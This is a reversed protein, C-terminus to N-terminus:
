RPAVFIGDFQVLRGEGRHSIDFINYLIYGHREFFLFYESLKPQSVYTPAVLLELYVLGISRKAIMEEAGFLVNMESGQVDIKLIDVQEIGHDRCFQDVTDTKVTVQTQTTFAPAGIVGPGWIEAVDRETALLSNTAGETNINFTLEGPSAALAMEFIHTHGDGGVAQSLKQFSSPSPEFAYIEAGPFLRRYERAIIGVHAGVDMIVPKPKTVLMRQADYPLYDPSAKRIHYGRREAMRKVATRWTSSIVGEMAACDADGGRGPGVGYVTGFAAKTLRRHSRDCGTWHKHGFVPEVVM